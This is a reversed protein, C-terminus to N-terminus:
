VSAQFHSLSTLMFYKITQFFHTFPFINLHQVENSMMQILHFLYKIRKM